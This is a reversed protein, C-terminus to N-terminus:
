DLPGTNISEDSGFTFICNAKYLRSHGVFFLPMILHESPFYCLLQNNMLSACFLICEHFQRWSAVIYSVFISPYRPLLFSVYKPKLNKINQHNSTIITVSIVPTEGDEVAQLVLVPCHLSVPNVWNLGSTRTSHGRSTCKFCGQHAPNVM